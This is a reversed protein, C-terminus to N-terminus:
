GYWGSIDRILDMAARAVAGFAQGVRLVGKGIGIAVSALIGPHAAELLCIGTVSLLTLVTIWKKRSGEKFELYPQTM